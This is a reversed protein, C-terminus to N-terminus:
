LTAGMPETNGNSARAAKPPAMPNRDIVIEKMRRCRFEAATPYDAEVRIRWQGARGAMPEAKIRVEAADNGDLEAASIRWTEGAYAANAALRAAAREVGAEALWWAQVSRHSTQQTQRGMGLQRVICVLLAAAVMLCVIVAVLIAGRRRNYCSM